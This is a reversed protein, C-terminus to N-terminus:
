CRDPVNLVQGPQLKSPSVEPNAKEMEDQVVRLEAGGPVDSAIGFFTDGSKVVVEHTEASCEPGNLSDVIKPGGLVLATAAALSAILRRM